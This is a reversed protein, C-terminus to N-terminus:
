NIEFDAQAAIIENADGFDVVGVATYKGLLLDNPLDIKFDRIFEPLITFRKVNVKKQEGTNLNTLSIYSNCYSIGDGSNKVKLEFYKKGDKEVFQFREINVKNIKVNPPNQYVYVGFGISPLIGMGLRNPRPELDLPPRDVVQDITVITWMAKYLHSSDPISVVLKIKVEEGPKLEFFSPAASIYKSLCYKCNPAQPSVPKGKTNMEFDNFGVNFKHAKKTDNQVKIEKTATSGPKINLYISSPSVSVGMDKFASDPIEPRQNQAFTIKFFFFYFIIIIIYFKM